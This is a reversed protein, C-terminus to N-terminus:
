EAIVGWVNVSVKSASSCLGAIIDDKKGGPLVWKLPEGVALPVTKGTWIQKDAAAEGAPRYRLHFTVAATDVNGVCVLLEKYARGLTVVTTEGTGLAAAGLHDGAELRRPSEDDFPLEILQGSRKARVMLIARMSSQGAYGGGAGGGTNGGGLKSLHKTLVNDVADAIARALAEEPM